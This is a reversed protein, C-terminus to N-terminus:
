IRISNIIRDCITRLFFEQDERYSVTITFSKQGNFIRVLRARFVGGQPSSRRYETIFASTGNISLKTTGLWALLRNGSMEIGPVINQRLVADLEKIDAAGAARADPQSVDLNPYYRINFMGATSNQEDYYNAAFALESSANAFGNAETKAQVWSDLTIRQNNSLVAWNRPLEVTVGRPLRISVYNGSAYTTSSFFVLAAISLWSFLCHLRTQNRM